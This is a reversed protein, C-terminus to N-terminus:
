GVRAPMDNDNAAIDSLAIPLDNDNAVQLRSIDEAVEYLMGRGLGIDRLTRDDLAQLTMLASRRVHWREFAVKGRDFAQALSELISRRPAPRNVIRRDDPVEIGGARAISRSLIELM